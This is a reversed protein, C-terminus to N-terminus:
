LDDDSGGGAETAGKKSIAANRGKKRKGQTPARIVSKPNKRREEARARLEKLKAVEEGIAKGPGAHRFDIQRKHNMPGTKLQGRMKEIHLRLEETFGNIEQLSPKKLPAGSYHRATAQQYIKSSQMFAKAARKLRVDRLWGMRQVLANKASELLDLTLKAPTEELKAKTSTTLVNTLDEQSADPAHEPALQKRKKVMVIMDEPLALHKCSSHSFALTTMDFCLTQFPHLALCVRM